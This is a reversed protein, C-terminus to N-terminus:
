YTPQQYGGTNQNNAVFPAQRYESSEGALNSSYGQQSPDEYGGTFSASVGQKYRLYNLLCIM